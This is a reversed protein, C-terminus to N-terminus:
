YSLTGTARSTAVDHMPPLERACSGDLDRSLTGWDRVTETYTGSAHAFQGTGGDFAGQRTVVTNFVCTVPDFWFSRSRTVASLHLTGAAFVLDESTTAGPDDSGQQGAVRGVGTFVGQAVATGAVVQRQGSAGTAVLVTTFAETGSTQASAPAAAPGATLALALAGAAGSLFRRM